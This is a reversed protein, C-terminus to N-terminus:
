GAHVLLVEQAEDFSGHLLIWLLDHMYFSALTLRQHLHELAHVQCGKVQTDVGQVHVGHTSSSSILLVSQSYFFFTCHYQDLLSERQLVPVSEVAEVLEVGLVIGDALGDESLDEDFCVVM